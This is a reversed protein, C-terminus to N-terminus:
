PATQVRPTWPIARKKSPEPLECLCEGILLLAPGVFHTLLRPASSNILDETRWNSVMYMIIYLALMPAIAGAGIVLPHWRRRWALIVIAAAVAIWLVGWNRIALMHRGVGLLADDLQDLRHPLDRLSFIAEDSPDIRSRWLFLSAAAVIAPLATVAARTRLVVAGVALLTLAFPLGENKTLLTFAVWLGFRWPDPSDRALEFVACAVFAALAIDSYASLASGEPHVAIQPLCLLLAGYWGGIRRRVEFALAVAFMAYLWRVHREDTDRVAIMVTAADMPVLLPYENRPSVTSGHFFPGDVSREHAIAKAKLLWFARGDYDTLPLIASVFFLWVVAAGMAIDATRSHLVPLGAQGSLRFRRDGMTRRRFVVIAASVLGLAIMTPILPVHLVSATFLVLANAGAGALFLNMPGAIRSVALGILPFWLLTFLLGTVALRGAV